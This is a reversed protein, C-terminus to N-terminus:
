GSTPPRDSSTISHEEFELETSREPTDVPGCLGVMPGCIRGGDARVEWLWPEEEPFPIGSRGGDEGGVLGAPCLAATRLSFFRM